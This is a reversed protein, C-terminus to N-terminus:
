NDMSWEGDEVVWMYAVVSSAIGLVIIAVLSVWFTIIKYNGVDKLEEKISKDQLTIRDEAIPKIGGQLSSALFTANFSQPVMEYNYRNSNDLYFNGGDACGKTTSFFGHNENDKTMGKCSIKNQFNGFNFLSSNYSRGYLFISDAVLMDSNVRDWSYTTVCGKKSCYTHPTYHEKNRKVASFSKTMEPFKVLEKNEVSFVGNTLLNGQQSDVAYNFHEKDSSKISTAYLVQKKYSDSESQGKVGLVFLVLISFGLLVVIIRKPDNM